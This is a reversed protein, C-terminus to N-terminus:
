RQIVPRRDIGGESIRRRARARSTARASRIAQSSAPRNEDRLRDWHLSALKDSARQQGGGHETET